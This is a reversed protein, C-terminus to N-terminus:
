ESKRKKKPHLHQWDAIVDTLANVYVPKKSDDIAIAELFTQKLSRGARFLELAEQIIKTSDNYGAIGMALQYTTEYEWLLDPQNAYGQRHEKETHM